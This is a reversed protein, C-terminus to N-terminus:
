CNHMIANLINVTTIFAGNSLDQLPLIPRGGESHVKGEYSHAEEQQMAPTLSPTSQRCKLSAWSPDLM